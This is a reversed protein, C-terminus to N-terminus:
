SPPTEALAPPTQAPPHSTATSGSDAAAQANAKLLDAWATSLTKLVTAASTLRAPEVDALLREFWARRRRSIDSWAAAGKDTLSVLCARGDKPDRERAILGNEILAGVQRSVVSLDGQALDALSTLRRPSRQSLLSLIAGQTRSLSNGDPFDRSKSLLVIRMFADSFDDLPDASADGAGGAAPDLIERM